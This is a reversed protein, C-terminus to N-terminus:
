ILASVPNLVRMFFQLAEEKSEENMTDHGAPVFLDLAEISDPHHGAQVGPVYAQDLVCRTDPPLQCPSAPM